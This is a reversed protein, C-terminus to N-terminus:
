NKFWSKELFHKEFHCNPCILELNSLENNLRNSDKHHIQLIEFKDYGCKECIKGRADMLRIKLSRYNRVNDKRPVSLKYRIGARHKNACGRSCTKKNAGALILNGCIICPKEKRCSLGYCTSSCYAKNKNLKLQWPRRYIPKQCILCKTNSNRRCDEPV